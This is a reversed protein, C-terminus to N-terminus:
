IVVYLKFCTYSLTKSIASIRVLEGVEVTANDGENNPPHPSLAFRLTLRREELTCGLDRSPDREKLWNYNSQGLLLFQNRPYRLGKKFAQKPYPCLTMCIYFLAFTEIYNRVQCALSRAQYTSVILVYIRM